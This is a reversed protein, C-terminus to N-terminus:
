ECDEPPVITGPMVDEWVFFPGARYKEDSVKQAPASFEHGKWLVKIPESDDFREPNKVDAKVWFAQGVPVEELSVEENTEDDYSVVSLTVEPTWNPIDLEFPIAYDDFYVTYGGPEAGPWINFRIQLGLIKRSGDDSRIVKPQMAEISTHEEDMWVRHAGWLNEGYIELYFRPRNGRAWNYERSWGDRSYTKTVVGISSTNLLQIGCLDSGKFGDVVEIDQDIESRFVLRNIEPRVRQWVVSGTIKGRKTSRDRIEWSGSIRDPSSPDLRMFSKPASYFLFSTELYYPSRPKLEIPNIRSTREPLVKPDGSGGRFWSPGHVVISGPSDSADFVFHGTDFYQGAGFYRKNPVGEWTAIWNGSLWALPTSQDFEPCDAAIEGVEEQAFCSIAAAFLVLVILTFRSRFSLMRGCCAISRASCGALERPSFQVQLLM